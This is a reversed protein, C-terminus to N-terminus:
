FLMQVSFVRGRGTSVEGTERQGDMRLSGDEQLEWNLQIQEGEVAESLYCVTFDRVWHQQHFDSPLLDAVWDLYRCNNMHGNWDLDTYRVQRQQANGLPKPILSGPAALESGELHGEVLIGSKGPLIMARTDREMLVWLSISRMLEQGQSDYIVSSRPYTTRTTPMPWTEVTIDEGAKPLRTVSVRHRIVAWFLNRDTLAQKDAGLLDSHDGAVEQLLNLIYSPKLRDFRDVATAPLHFSKRYTETM